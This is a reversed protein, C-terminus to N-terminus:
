RAMASSHSDRRDRRLSSKPFPPSAASPAATLLREVAPLFNDFGRGRMSRLPELRRITDLRAQLRGGGAQASQDAVSATQHLIEPREQTTSRSPRPLGSWRAEIRRSTKTSSFWNPLRQMANSARSGCSPGSIATRRAPRYAVRRAQRDVARPVQDGLAEELTALIAQLEKLAELKLRMKRITESINRYTRSRSACNRSASRVTKWSTPGCSSRPTPQPRADDCERYVEAARQRKQEGYPAHPLLHRMYERVYDGAKDRHNVFNQEGVAAVIPRPGGGVPPSNDPAAGNSSSKSTLIAGVAVFLALVTEKSDSKRAELAMGITV